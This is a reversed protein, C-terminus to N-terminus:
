DFVAAILRVMEATASGIVLTLQLVEKRTANEVVLFHVMDNGHEETWGDKNWSDASPPDKYVFFERAVVTGQDALAVSLRRVGDADANQILGDPWLEAVVDLIPVLDFGSQATEFIVDIGGVMSSM